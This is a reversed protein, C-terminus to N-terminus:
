AAKPLPPIQPEAPNTGEQEKPKYTAEPEIPQPENEPKKPLEIKPAKFAKKYANLLRIIRARNALNAGIRRDLLALYASQKFNEEEAAALHEYPDPWDPDTALDEADSLDILRQMYVMQMDIIRIYAYQADALEGILRHEAPTNPQFQHVLEALIEDFQERSEYRLLAPGTEIAYKGHKVANQSSIAKGLPTKPGKSKAGNIRAQDARSNKESM